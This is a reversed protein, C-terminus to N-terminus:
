EHMQIKRCSQIRWCRVTVIDHSLLLVSHSASLPTAVKKAHNAKVSRAPNTMALNMLLRWITFLYAHMISQYANWITHLSFHSYLTTQKVSRNCKVVYKNAFPKPRQHRDTNLHVMSSHRIILQHRTDEPTTPPGAAPDWLDGAGRYHVRLWGHCRLYPM